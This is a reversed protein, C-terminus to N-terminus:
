SPSTLATCTSAHNIDRDSLFPLLLLILFIRHENKLWAQRHSIVSRLGFTCKRCFVCLAFRGSYQGFASTVASSPSRPSGAVSVSARQRWHVSYASGVSQTNGLGFIPPFCGQQCSESMRLTM